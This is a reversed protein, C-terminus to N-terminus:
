KRMKPPASPTANPDYGQNRGQGITYYAITAKKNINSATIVGQPVGWLISYPWLLLDLAFAGYEGNYIDGIGILLNLGGAVAPQKKEVPEAGEEQLNEYQQQEIPSLTNCAASIVVAAAVLVLRKM